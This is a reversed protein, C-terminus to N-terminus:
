KPENLRQSLGQGSAAEPQGGKVSQLGAELIPLNLSFQFSIVCFGIIIRFFFFISYLCFKFTPNNKILQVDQQTM